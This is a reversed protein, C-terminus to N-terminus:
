RIKKPEKGSFDIISSPATGCAGDLYYRCSGGFVKQISELDTLHPEGSKNVSTATVPECAAVASRLWATAPMRLAITDDKSFLQSFANSAKLIITTPASNWINLLREKNDFVLALNEVQEWSGVLVPLPRKGRNKVAFIKENAATSSIPAGIGYITDTPFIFPEGSMKSINMYTIFANVSASLTIM